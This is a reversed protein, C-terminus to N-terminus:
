SAALRGSPARYLDGRELLREAVHEVRSREAGRVLGPLVSPEVEGASRVAAYVAAYVEGQPLEDGGVAESSSAELEPEELEGFVTVGEPVELREVEEGQFEKVLEGDEPEWTFNGYDSSMLEKSIDSFFRRIDPAAGTLWPAGHVPRLRAPLEWLDYFEGVATACEPCEEEEHVHVLEGDEWEYGLEHAIEEALAEYESEELEAEAGEWTDSAHHFMGWSRTANGLESGARMGAHTLLYRVHGITDELEDLTAYKKIVFDEGEHEQIYSPFGVNHVHPGFAAYERWSGLGLEDERVARWYGGRSGGAGYGAERLRERIDSEEESKIRCPHFVSYGGVEPETDYCDPCEEVRHGKHGKEECRVKESENEKFRRYGRRFLRTNIDDWDWTKAEEPPVSMQLAHPREGHVRAYAELELVMDFARERAWNKYCDPCEVRRCKLHETRIADGSPCVAESEPVRQAGCSEGREGLGPLQFDYKSLRFELGYDRLGHERRAHKIALSDAHRNKSKYDTSWSCRECIAVYGEETDKIFYGLQADRYKVDELGSGAPQQPKADSEPKTTTTNGKSYRSVSRGAESSSM